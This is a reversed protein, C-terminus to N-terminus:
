PYTRARSDHQMAGHERILRRRCMCRRPDAVVWRWARQIKTAAASHVVIGNVLDRLRGDFMNDEFVFKVVDRSVDADLHVYRGAFRIAVIADRTLDDCIGVVRSVGQELGYVAVVGMSLSMNMLPESICRDITQALWKDYTFVRGDRTNTHTHIHDVFADSASIAVDAVHKSLAYQLDRELAHYGDDTCLVLFLDELSM